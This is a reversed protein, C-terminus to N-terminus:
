LMCKIIFQQLLKLHYFFSSSVIVETGTIRNYCTEFEKAIDKVLNIRGMDVLINLFNATHPKLEEAKAIEEAVEMKKEVSITPNAFFNQVAPDSFVRDIKEVDAITADLTGNAQAVDALATAYSSAATDVM